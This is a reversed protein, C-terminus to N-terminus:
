SHFCPNAGFAADRRHDFDLGVPRHGSAFFAPLGNASCSVVSGVIFATSATGFRPVYVTLEALFQKSEWTLAADRRGTWVANALAISSSLAAMIISGTGKLVPKVTHSHRKVPVAISFLSAADATARLEPERNIVIVAATRPLVSACLAYSAQKTASTVGPEAEEPIGREKKDLGTLPESNM